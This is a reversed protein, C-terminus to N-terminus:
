HVAEDAAQQGGAQQAFGVLAMKHQTRMHHIPGVAKQCLLINHGFKVFGDGAQGLKIGVREREGGEAVVLHHIQGAAVALRRQAESEADAHLQRRHKGGGAFHHQAGQARGFHLRQQRLKRRGVGLAAHLAVSLQGVLQGAAAALAICEVIALQAATHM